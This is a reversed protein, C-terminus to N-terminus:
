NKRLKLKINLNFINCNVILFVGSRHVATAFNVSDSPPFKSCKNHVKVVKANGHLLNIM